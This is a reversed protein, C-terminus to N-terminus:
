SESEATVAAITRLATIAGEVDCVTAVPGGQWSTLFAEQLPTYGTPKPKRKGTLVKVEVLLTRGKWGVLLDVPLGIIWVTAGMARMASVIDAQTSDVRAARRM